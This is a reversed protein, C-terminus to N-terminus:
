RIAEIEDGVALSGPSEPVFYSGFIVGSGERRYVALTRLPEQGVEATDQNTTTVQCRVCHKAARFSIGGARFGLWVDEGFAECGEVIVNPRFRNMPIAKELRSNLDVLSEESAVLVPFGDAFSVRDGERTYVPNAARVSSEPKYAMRCPVGLQRTFWEDVAPSVLVADCEDQWVRVRVPEGSPTPVITSQGDPAHVVLAGDVFEPRYLCMRPTTRQSLFTNEGDILVWRRDNALGQTEVQCQSTEIGRLGKVPYVILNAIRPM